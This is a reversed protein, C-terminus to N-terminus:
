EGVRGNGSAAARPVAAREGHAPLGVCIAAGPAFDGSLSLYADLVVQTWVRESAGVATGLRALRAFDRARAVDRGVVGVRDPWTPGAEGSVASRDAYCKQFIVEGQATDGRRRREAVRIM